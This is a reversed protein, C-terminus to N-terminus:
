PHPRALRFALMDTDPSYPGRIVNRPMGETALLDIGFGVRFDGKLPGIPNMFFPDPENEEYIDQTWELPSGYFHSLGELNGEDIEPNLHAYAHPHPAEYRVHRGLSAAEWQAQTVLWYAERTIRAVSSAFANAVVHTVRAPSDLLEAGIKKFEDVMGPFVAILQRWTVPTAQIAYPLTLTVNSKRVYRDAPTYRDFQVRLGDKVIPVFHAANGVHKESMVHSEDPVDLPLTVSYQQAIGDFLQDASRIIGITEIFRKLQENTIDVQAHRSSGVPYSKDGAKLQSVRFLRM